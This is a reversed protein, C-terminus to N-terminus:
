HRRRTELSVILVAGPLLHNALMPLRQNRKNRHILRAEIMRVSHKLAMQKFVGFLYKHLMAM